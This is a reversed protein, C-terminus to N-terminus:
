HGTVAFCLHQTSPCVGHDLMYNCQLNSLGIFNKHKIMAQNNGPFGGTNGYPFLIM